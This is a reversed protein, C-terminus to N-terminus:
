VIDCKQMCDIIYAIQDDKLKYYLKKGDRQTTLLGLDRMKALHHSLVTQEVKLEDRLENVARERGDSLANIIQLRVSHGIGKLIYAFHNIREAAVQQTQQEQQNNETLM